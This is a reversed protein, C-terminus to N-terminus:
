GISQPAANKREVREDISKQSPESIGTLTKALEGPQYFISAIIACEFTCRCKTDKIYASIRRGLDSDVAKQVDYGWDRINGYTFGNYRKKLEEPLDMTELIECPTLVGTDYLVVLRKGAVCNVQFENTKATEIVIRRTRTTLRRVMAKTAHSDTAMEKKRYELYEIAKEYADPLVDKAAMEKPIGRTLQLTYDDAPFDKLFMDVIDRANDINFSSVVCTMTIIINPFKEQLKRLMAHTAVIKDFSGDWGRIANHVDKTGDLSIGIKFTTEPYKACVETLVRETADTYTGNTPITMSRAGSNECFYGIIAALDRRLFPEGGTLTLQMLNPLSKSVKEMEALSMGDGTPANLSDAYFCMNCKLNCRSTVYLILYSVSDASLYSKALRAYRGAVRVPSNM